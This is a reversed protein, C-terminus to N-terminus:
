SLMRFQCFGRNACNVEVTREDPATQARKNDTCTFSCDYVFSEASTAYMQIEATRSLHMRVCTYHNTAIM